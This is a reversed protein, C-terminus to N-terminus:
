LERSQDKSEETIQRRQNDIRLSANGLDPNFRIPNDSNLGQESEIRRHFSPQRSPPGAPKNAVIKPQRVQMSPNTEHVAKGSQHRNTSFQQREHDIGQVRTSGTPSFQRSPPQLTMSAQKTMIKEFLRMEPMEGSFLKPSNFAYQPTAVEEKRPSNQQSSDLFNTYSNMNIKFTIPAGTVHDKSTFQNLNQEPTRESRNEASQKTTSRPSCVTLYKDIKKKASFLDKLKDLKNEMDSDSDDSLDNYFKSINVKSINM